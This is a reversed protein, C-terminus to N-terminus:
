LGRGRVQAAGWEWVGRVSTPPCHKCSVFVAMYADTLANTSKVKGLMRFEDAPISEAAAPVVRAAGWHRVINSHLKLKDINALRSGGLKGQALQEEALFLGPLLGPAVM